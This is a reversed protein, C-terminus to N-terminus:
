GEQQSDGMSAGPTKGPHEHGYKIKESAPLDRWNAEGGKDGGGPPTKPSEGPKSEPAKEEFGEIAGIAKHETFKAVNRLIMDDDLEKGEEPFTYFGQLREPLKGDEKLKLVQKWQTRQDVMFKEAITKLRKNEELTISLKKAAINDGRLLAEELEKSKTEFKTAAEKFTLLDKSKQQNFEETVKMEGESLVKDVPALVKGSYQKEAASIATDSIEIGEGKLFDIIAKIKDAM